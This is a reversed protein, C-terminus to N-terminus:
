VVDLIEELPALQPEAPSGRDDATAAIWPM